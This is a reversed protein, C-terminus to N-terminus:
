AASSRPPRFLRRRPGDKFPDAPQPLQGGETVGVFMAAHSPPSSAPSATAPCCPCADCGSNCEGDEDDEPCDCGDDADEDAFASGASALGQEAARVWQVDAGFCIAVTAAVLWLLVKRTLPRRLKHPATPSMGCCPYRQVMNPCGPRPRPQRSSPQPPEPRRGGCQHRRGCRRRRQLGGTLAGVTRRPRRSFRAWNESGTTTLAKTPAITPISRLMEGANASSSNRRATRVAIREKMTAKVGADPTATATRMRSVGHRSVDPSGTEVRSSCAEFCRRGRGALDPVLSPALSSGPTPGPTPGRLGVM